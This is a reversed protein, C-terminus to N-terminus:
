FMDLAVRAVESMMSKDWPPDWVLEVECSKIELIHAISRQVMGPMEGAVPCAPSTLTMLIKVELDDNIIIDYILGLGWINVPIEPDFVTQIGQIIQQQIRLKEKENTM